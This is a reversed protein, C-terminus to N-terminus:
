NCQCKPPVDDCPRRGCRYRPQPNLSNAVIAWVTRQGSACITVAHEKLLVFHTEANRRVLNHPVGFLAEFTSYQAESIDLALEITKYYDTAEKALERSLGEDSLDVEWRFMLGSIPGKLVVQSYLCECLFTPM